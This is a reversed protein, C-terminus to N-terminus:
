KEKGAWPIYWYVVKWGGIGRGAMRSSGSENGQLKQPQSSSTSFLHSIQFCPMTDALIFSVRGAWM